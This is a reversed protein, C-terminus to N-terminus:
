RGGNRLQPGGGGLEADNDIPFTVHQSFLQQMLGAKFRKLTERQRELLEIKEDVASLADAIREQEEPSPLSIPLHQYESIWHRKHAAPEYDVQGMIEFVVKCSNAKDRLSLMKM